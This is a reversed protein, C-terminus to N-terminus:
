RKQGQGCMTSAEANLADADDGVLRVVVVNYKNCGHLDIGSTQHTKDAGTHQPAKRRTRGCVRMRSNEVSVLQM